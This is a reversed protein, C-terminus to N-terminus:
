DTLEDPFDGGELSYYYDENRSRDFCYDNIQEVAKDTTGNTDLM